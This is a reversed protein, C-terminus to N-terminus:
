DKQPKMQPVKPGFYGLTLNGSGGMNEAVYRRMAEKLPDPEAERYLVGRRVPESYNPSLGPMEPGSSPVRKVPLNGYFELMERIVRQEETIKEIEGLAPCVPKQELFKNIRETEKNERYNRIAERIDGKVLIPAVYQEVIRNQERGNSLIEKVKTLIGM